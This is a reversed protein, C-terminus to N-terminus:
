FIYNISCYINTSKSSHLIEYVEDLKLNKTLRKLIYKEFRLNEKLSLNNKYKGVPAYRFARFNENDVLGMYMHRNVNKFPNEGMTEAPTEKLLYYTNNESILVSQISNIWLYKESYIKIFSKSLDIKLDDNSYSPNTFVIIFFVKIILKIYNFKM